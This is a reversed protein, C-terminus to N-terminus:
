GARQNRWGENFIQAFHKAWRRYNRREHHDLEALLVEVVQERDGVREDHRVHRRQQPRRVTVVLLHVCQEIQALRDQDVRDVLRVRAIATKRRGTGQFYAASKM